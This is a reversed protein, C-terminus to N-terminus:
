TLHEPSLPERSASFTAPIDSVAQGLGSGPVKTFSDAIMEMTQM